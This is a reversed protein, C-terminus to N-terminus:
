AVNASANESQDAVEDPQEAATQPLHLVDNLKTILFALSGKPLTCTV